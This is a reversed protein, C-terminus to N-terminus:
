LIFNSEFIDLNQNEELGFNKLKSFDLFFKFKNHQKIKTEFKQIM